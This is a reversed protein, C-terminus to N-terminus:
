DRNSISETLSNTIDDKLLDQYLLPTEQPGMQFARGLSLVRRVVVHDKLTLYIHYSTALRIPTVM